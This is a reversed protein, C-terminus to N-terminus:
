PTSGVGFWHMQGRSGLVVYELLQLRKLRQWFAFEDLHNLWSWTFFSEHCWARNVHVWRIRWANEKFFFVRGFQCFIRHVGLVFFRESHRKQFFFFPNGGPGGQIDKTSRQPIKWLVLTKLEFEWFFFCASFGDKVCVWSFGESIRFGSQQEVSCEFWSHFVTIRKWWFFVRPPRMLSNYRCGDSCELFLSQNSSICLFCQPNWALLTKKKQPPPM